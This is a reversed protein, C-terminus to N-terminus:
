CPHVDGGAVVVFLGLLPALRAIILGESGILSQGRLGIGLRTTLSRTLQPEIPLAYVWGVTVGMDFPVLCDGTQEACAAISGTLSAAFGLTQRYSVWTAVWCLGCECLLVQAFFISVPGALLFQANQSFALRRPLCFSFFSASLTGSGLVRHWGLCM